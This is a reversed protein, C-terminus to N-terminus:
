IKHCADQKAPLVFFISVPEPPNIHLVPRGQHQGELLEACRAETRAKLERALRPNVQALTEHGKRM